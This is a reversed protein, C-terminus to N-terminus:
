KGEKTDEAIHAASASIGLLGHKNNFLICGTALSSRVRRDLYFDIRDLVLGLTKDTLGHEEVLTLGDDVTVSALIGGAAPVPVGALMAYLALLELRCDAARSHTDMVGGALKILKGIHGVLLVASFDLDTAMDLSDGIFNSCLVRPMHGYDPHDRLFADGYKGPTLIIKRHGEARYMKLEAHITDVVAKNSMPEVLGTTGIVSLGGVIGLNPNFTKAALRVGEPISIVVDIGGDHGFADCVARVEKEIMRRPVANIAASGVPQELGPRTIRGVGGGGDIAVDHGASKKVRAHVLAGDTIDPDDGADKRVACSVGDNDIHVNEVPVEVVVNGPTEISVISLAKGTLLITTAAKAALAACSGTTFGLRLRRGNKQM